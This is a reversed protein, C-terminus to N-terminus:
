GIEEVDEIEGGFVDLVAQVAPEAKARAELEARKAVAPDPGAAATEVPAAERVVIAIRRGAAAQALQEIKARKAEFQAKLVKHVPLFSFVIADGEVDISRAQAVCMNYFLKEQERISGLVAAKVDAVPVAPASPAAARSPAPAPPASAPTPASSKSAAAPAAAPKSAADASRPAPRAPPQSAPKGPVIPAAGPRGSELGAILDTLPTLQRLHIWKVLTMEFHHRPQSSNRIEYEARSLLDFARMLDERSYQKALATIRERESEAAVDPDNVRTPDIRLVFLDRMLRALERCVIRLDFGAEVVTGALAFAGALDERAVAEVIDFQM